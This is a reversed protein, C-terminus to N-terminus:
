SLTDLNINAARTNAARTNVTRGTEAAFYPISRELGERLRVKPTWGLLQGALTIDPRRLLPDDKPLPRDIIVSRSGTMELIIDALERVTFEGPDGINVPGTISADSRMLRFFGEILDDVYCFSRTQTGGGYLELPAEELARVIFNSVVRGDQPDMNPGYTNFIRVVKIEVGHQRHYDFCLTEAARKGEDYCARPGITNVAGRYSETQPHVQPDGYIESTSAQFVRAGCAVALDLVNKMGLVNILMTGVPDIQYQPPSAPCALNWIEDYNGQPLPDRVDAKIFSLKPNTLLPEINKRRGTQLNDLCVVDCGEDLLRACVHSGLFGAGGTVLATRTKGM